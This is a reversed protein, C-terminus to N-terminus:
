LLLIITPLLLVGMMNTRKVKQTICYIGTLTSIIFIIFGLFGSVFIVVLILIGLTIKSLLSYNIKYIKESLFKALNKTVFFSIIGSILITILILILLKISPIGILNNIAVASGSRAKSIAYLSLFSFGMVLMNTIGLLFLFGKNDTKSISNGIIAAQGSGLGPLFGCLPSAIIAAITPKVKKIKIESIEQKPIQTKTKISLIISSAGFLGTLLPLLSEKLDINLTIMGLLGTLIFVMLANMKKKETFILFFSAIILIYPILFKISDYTKSFFLILPVSLIMLLFVATLCGRVALMIAGYGYGEKLLEHGPLISLETETDPCGLFISPIFDIFTHTISMAVIFITLYLPDIFSLFSLSLAVILTGVLNIHIGPTLGSIIGASVGILLFLILEILM